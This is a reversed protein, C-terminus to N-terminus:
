KDLALVDKIKDVPMKLKPLTLSGLWLHYNLTSQKDAPPTFTACLFYENTAGRPMPWPGGGMPGLILRPDGQSGSMSGVPLKLTSDPMLTATFPERLVGNFSFVGVPNVLNNHGDRM